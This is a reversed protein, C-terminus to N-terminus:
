LWDYPRGSKLTGYLYHKVAAMGSCVAIGGYAKELKAVIKEVATVTPNESEHTFIVM